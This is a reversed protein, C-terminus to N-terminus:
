RLGEVSVAAHAVTMRLHICAALWAAAAAAAGAFHASSTLQLSRIPVAPPLVLHIMAGVPLVSNSKVPLLNQM